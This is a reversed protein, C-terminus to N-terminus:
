EPPSPLNLMDNFKQRAADDDIRVTVPPADFGRPQALHALGPLAVVLALVMLQAALYPALARALPRIATKQPLSSRAMMVAYGSPPVLFQRKYM